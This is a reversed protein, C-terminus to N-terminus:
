CCVAAFTLYTFLILKYDTHVLGFRYYFSSTICLCCTNTNQNLLALYSLLHTIARIVSQTCFTCLILRKKMLERHYLTFINGIKTSARQLRRSVFNDNFLSYKKKSITIGVGRWIRSSWDTGKNTEIQGVAVSM